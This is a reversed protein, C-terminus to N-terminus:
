ACWASWIRFYRSVRRYVAAAEQPRELKRWCEGQRFLATSALDRQEEFRATVAEYAKLASAVDGKVEEAYLAEQMAQTVADRDAAVVPGAVVPGALMWVAVSRVVVTGLLFYNAKM